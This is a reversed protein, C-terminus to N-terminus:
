VRMSVLQEAMEEDRAMTVLYVGKYGFKKVFRPINQPAALVYICKGANLAKEYIFDWCEDAGDPQGAGPTWQLANLNEIGLVSDLHKVADVGDLHYMSKDLWDAQEKLYPLAFEDFMDTSLMASVDCQLKAIKGKGWLQFPGSNSYGEKDCVIDYHMQYIKFWIDQIERLMRKIEDPYDMMHFMLDQTPYLSALIDLHETIDPMGVLFAGDAIRKAERTTRLSWQLWTNDLDLELHDNEPDNLVPKYWITDKAFTPQCGLFLALSGVGINAAFRPYTEGTFYFYEFLKQNREMLVDLDTWFKEAEEADLGSEKVPAKKAETDGSSSKLWGADISVGQYKNKPVQIAMVPRGANGGTWWDNMRQRIEDWHKLYINKMEKGGLKITGAGCNEQLYLM